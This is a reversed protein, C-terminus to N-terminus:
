YRRLAEALAGLFREVNEPRATHGMLGVRWIRGALPGLGAGIEIDHRELLEKRVAAEDVGEPVNVANLMPLRHEADVLMTLGLDQLGAAL